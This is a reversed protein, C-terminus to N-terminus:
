IGPGYCGVVCRDILLDRCTAQIDPEAAAVLGDIEAVKILPPDQQSQKVLEETRHKKSSKVCSRYEKDMNPISGEDGSSKGLLAMECASECAQYDLFSPALGVGGAAILLAAGSGWLLQPRKPRPLPTRHGSLFAILLVTLGLVALLAAVILM